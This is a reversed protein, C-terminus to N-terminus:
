LLREKNEKEYEEYDRLRARYEQLVSILSDVENDNIIIESIGDDFTQEISTYGYLNQVKRVVVNYATRYLTQEINKHTM